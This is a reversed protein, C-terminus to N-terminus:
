SAGTVGLTNASRLCTSIRPNLYLSKLYIGIGYASFLVTSWFLDGLFTFRAFPIAAVFCDRLGSFTVPYMGSFMWVAFNTLLFFATSSLLACGAIRVPLIQGRIFRSLFVPALLCSYVVAMIRIDYFGLFVDSFIMGIFVPAICNSGRKFFFGSFLAVAAVPTFNPTHPLLRAAMILIALAVLVSFELSRNKM